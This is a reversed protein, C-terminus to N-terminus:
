SATVARGQASWALGVLSVGVSWFVSTVLWVSGRIGILASLPEAVWATAIMPWLLLAELLMGYSVASTVAGTTPLLSTFSLAGPCAM